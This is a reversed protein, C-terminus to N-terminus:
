LKDKDPDQGSDIGDRLPELKQRDFPMDQFRRIIIQGEETSISEIGARAALGKIKVAYLLNEVQPPLAGFRDHYERAIDELKEAAEPKALDRYLELRTNVDPVYDEPIYADLPLDITPAPLRPKPEKAGAIRAKREEVAEALLRTYLNFGIATIHGSQKPGLLTGAGRIELDKM